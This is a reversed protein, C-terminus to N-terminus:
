ESEVEDSGFTQRLFGYFLRSLQDMYDSGPQPTFHLELSMDEDILELLKKAHEQTIQTM